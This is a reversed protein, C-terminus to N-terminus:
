HKHQPKRERQKSQQSFFLFMPSHLLHPIFIHESNGSFGDKCSAMIAAQADVALRGAMGDALWGDIAPGLESLDALSKDVQTHIKAYTREWTRVEYKLRIVTLKGIVLAETQKWM